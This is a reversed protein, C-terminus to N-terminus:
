VLCFDRKTVHPHFILGPLKPFSLWTSVRASDIHPVIFVNLIMAPPHLNRASSSPEFMAGMQLEFTFAHLALLCRPGKHWVRKHPKRATHTAQGSHPKGAAPM